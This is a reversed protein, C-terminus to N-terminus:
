DAYNDTDWFKELAAPLDGAADVTQPLWHAPYLARYQKQAFRDDVLVVVGKDEESRIVRGATQLVRTFGPYRYAYDFGDLGKHRYQGAILDQEVGAGPLGVGVIIVGILRDGQYDVGEGFVGGMIAFGLRNGPTGLEALLSERTQRDAGPQQQWTDIYPHRRTFEAHIRRLYAYSPFFALYSGAHTQIVDALLDALASASAERQRYRTDVYPVLLQLARQPNFPSALVLQRTELPLGLADRYFVAPRLTASFLVVARFKLYQRQLAEAADLCRLQVDVEKRQGRRTITTLTRHQEGHLDDIVVFRCLAKFVESLDDALVPGSSMAQMCAEAAMAAIGALRAPPEAQVAVESQQSRAHKLLGDAVAQLQGALLPQEASCSEAASQCQSRLLRASYMSRSRDLLNHAEDILVVTDRRSESFRTLRVLPDFVYNYDCIALTVWPLLQLAFEFPCLQYQWAVADLTDGDIVGHEIVEQRAAPLRDFFGTTMPCKGQIDRECRGNSCFCTAQKARIMVATLELGQAQLSRVAQLASTCGSTKATLYVMHEVHGDGIAKVVPFLSSITKGIGTPAECLLAEGDRTCRYVAAAMDRQGDRFGSHPFEVAQATRRTAAQWRKLIRMWDLYRQLAEHAFIGLAACSIERTLRTETNDRLNIYLLELTLVDREHVPGNRLRENAYCFGYLSVQAWHLECQSASLKDPPVLTTKIETVRGQERDLLDIRGTLTMEVGDVCTQCKLRVEADSSSRRQLRQHARMGDRASPGAVGSFELDGRRCSFDALATVALRLQM